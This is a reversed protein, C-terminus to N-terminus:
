GAQPQPNPHPNRAVRVRAARVLRVGLKYGRQLEEVVQNDKATDSDVVEIAEHVHPDFTESKTLIRSLGLMSLTDEFQNRILEIGVRFEDLSQVSTQLAQDLSDLVPLFARVTDALTADKLEQQERSARKRLDEYEARLYTLREVLANREEELKKFEITAPGGGAICSQQEATASEDSPTQAAPLEHEVDFSSAIDVKGNDTTM